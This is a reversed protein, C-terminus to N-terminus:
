EAHGKDQLRHGHRGARHLVRYQNAIIQQDVFKDKRRAIVLQGEQRLTFYLSTVYDDECIWPVIKMRLHVSFM